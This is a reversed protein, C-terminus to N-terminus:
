TQGSTAMSATLTVRQEEGRGRLLDAISPRQTEISSINTVFVRWNANRISTSAHPAGSWYSNIM